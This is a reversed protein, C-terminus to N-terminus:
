ASSPSEWLPQEDTDIHAVDLGIAVKTSNAKGIPSRGQEQRCGVGSM